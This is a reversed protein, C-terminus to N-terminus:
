AIDQLLLLDIHVVGLLVNAVLRCSSPLSLMPSVNRCQFCSKVCVDNNYRTVHCFLLSLILFTIIVIGYVKNHYCWRITVIRTNRQLCHIPDDDM